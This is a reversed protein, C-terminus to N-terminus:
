PHESRNPRESDPRLRIEFKSNYNSASPNEANPRFYQDRGAAIIDYDWNPQIGEAHAAEVIRRRSQSVPIEAKLTEFDWTQQVTNSLETEIEQHEKSGALNTIELPDDQLNFLLPPDTDCHIYKYAGKTVSVAPASLADAAMEACVVNDGSLSNGQTADLLSRGDYPAEIVGLEQGASGLDVLTPLLDVLSVNDACRRGSNSGPMSIFLPVKLAVDFFSRKFWLGREGLAEGHDSIFIIITNDALSAMELADLLRTVQDDIYSIAAYYGHRAMRIDEESMDAEEVGIHDHLRQSHPDLDERAMRPIRPMDIDDHRYRDWYAKPMAFPDHPHTFSTFLCFPREDDSRSYDHIKRVAKFCVEDDFDLQITREYIGSMKVGNVEGAAALLREPDNGGHNAMWNAAWNFDSPYIDTTLREDFGHLQDPGIYHMKGSLCTQYGLLRLYHAFTPISAPFETGNDYVGANFALLGYMMSARSPGCLPYNCYANEFVTSRAALRDLTPTKAVANGYAPLARPSLQDAQIILFNPQKTQM